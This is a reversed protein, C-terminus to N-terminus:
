VNKWTRTGDEDIDVDIVIGCHERLFAESNAILADLEKSMEEQNRLLEETQENLRNTLEELEDTTSKSKRTDRITSMVRKGFGEIANKVNEIVAVKM